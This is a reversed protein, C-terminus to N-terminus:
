SEFLGTGNNYFGGKMLNLAENRYVQLLRDGNLDTYGGDLPKGDRRLAWIKLEKLRESETFSNEEM